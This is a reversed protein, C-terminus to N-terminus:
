EHIFNTIVKDNIMRYIDDGSWEPNFGLATDDVLIHWYLKKPNFVTTPNINGNVIHYKIKHYKLYQIMNIYADLGRENGADRCTYIIIDHGEDYLKNICNVIGERIELCLPYNNQKTITGDFDFAIIM